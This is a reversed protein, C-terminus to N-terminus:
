LSRQFAVTWVTVVLAHAIMAARLSRAKEFALGYFFGAVAALLAFRWNPFNRYPLHVAGFCLSSVIMGTWRGGMSNTLLPQLVGRFFFEEGYAIFLYAAIFMGVTAFPIQWGAMKPLQFRLIEFYLGVPLLLGFFVAFYGIGVAWDRRDPVISFGPVKWKRVFLFVAIGVRLWLLKAIAGLKLGEVTPFLTTFWPSLILGAMGAMLMVDTVAQHPLVVHWFCVVLMAVALLSFGEPRTGLLAHLVLVPAVGSTWILVGQLWAPVEHFARQFRSIAPLFYFVAELLLAPLIIWPLNM